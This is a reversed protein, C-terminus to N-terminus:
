DMEELPSVSKSEAQGEEVAIGILCAELLGEWNIWPHIEGFLKTGDKGACRMLEPVGGPHFPLYPTINYVKGSLVTWADKGKRGNFQKLLSPPVRLYPTSPPLGRLNATPSQTLRSWDLASHGEALMVKKRPKPPISSHTPPPALSSSVSSHQPSAMPNRNPLSSVPRQRNFNPVPGLRPPGVHGGSARQASNIAPFSPPPTNLETEARLTFTPVTSTTTSKPTPPSGSSSTKRQSIVFSPPPMAKRDQEEKSITVEERIITIGPAKGTPTLPDEAESLTGAGEVGEDQVTEKVEKSRSLDRTENGLEGARAAGPADDNGGRKGDELAPRRFWPLFSWSAPPHRFCFISFTAILISLGLLAM